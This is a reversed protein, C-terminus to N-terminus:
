KPDNTEHCVKKINRTFPQVVAPGKKITEWADLAM